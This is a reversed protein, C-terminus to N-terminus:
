TYQEHQQPSSPSACQGSCHVVANSHGRSGGTRLACQSSQFKLGHVTHERGALDGAAMATRRSCAPLSECICRQLHLVDQHEVALPELAQLRVRRRQGHLALGCVSHRRRPM